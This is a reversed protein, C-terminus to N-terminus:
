AHTLEMQLVDTSRARFGAECYALYFNWLRLFREDFGLCRVEAAAAVFRARWRRLTEAYDRGFGFVDVVRLGAREAQGRLVQPSALMGGPFVYQQIFDTGRRYRDFLQDDITIAQILLKGSPRLRERLTRFFIPWYREGVAEYMELSVVHEYQGSADRYDRLEFRVRDGLGQMAAQEQAWQLQQKSLTIGHVHCGRSRAAHTAFGGWGCGIELIRDGRKAGLRQLVREYKVYQADELTSAADEGFVGASYTMTEDLWLRYFENGLDYHAAINRRSGTRTNARLFHRLRYLLQGWWRGYIAKEVADRNLAALCMLGVLDDTDWWREIYGEAFGVDGRRLLEGCARWDILDLNAYPGPMDGAFSFSLGDPTNLRLSGFRLRSLLSSLLKGARPIEAVPRLLDAECPKM